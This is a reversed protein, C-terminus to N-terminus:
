NNDALSSNTQKWENVSAIANKTYDVEKLTDDNWYFWKGVKEGQDYTASVVKHGQVNFSIWDGHLKGDITYTGTQSVTGNEHYYTAEILNTEKNLKLTREKQAFSLTATLMIALALIKKMKIQTNILSQM